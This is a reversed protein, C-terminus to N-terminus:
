LAAHARTHTAHGQEAPGAPFAVGRRQVAVDDQPGERRHHGVLLVLLAHHAVAAHFPHEDPRRAEDVLAAPLWPHQTGTVLSADPVDGALTEGADQDVGGLSRVIDM